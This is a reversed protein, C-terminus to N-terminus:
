VGKGHLAAEVFALEVRLQVLKEANQRHEGATKALLVRIADRAEEVGRLVEVRECDALMLLVEGRVERLQVLREANQRRVAAEEAMMQRISERAMEVERLVEARKQKNM